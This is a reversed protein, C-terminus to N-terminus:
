NFKRLRKRTLSITPSCLGLFGFYEPCCVRAGFFRGLSFRSFLAFVIITLHFFRIQNTREKLCVKSTGIDFSFHVHNTVRPLLVRNISLRPLLVRNLLKHGTEFTLNTQDAWFHFSKKISEGISIKWSQGELDDM